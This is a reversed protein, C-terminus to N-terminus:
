AQVGELLKDLDRKFDEDCTRSGEPLIPELQNTHQSHPGAIGDWNVYCDCDNPNVSGDPFVYGAQTLGFKYIRGEAVRSPPSIGDVGRALRVRQGVFFRSM